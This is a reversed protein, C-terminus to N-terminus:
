VRVGKSKSLFCKYQDFHVLFHHLLKYYHFFSVEQVFNNGAVIHFHTM